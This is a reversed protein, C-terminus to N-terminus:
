PIKLPFQRRKSKLSTGKTGALSPSQTTLSLSLIHKYYTSASTFTNIKLACDENWELTRGRHLSRQCRPLDGKTPRLPATPQEWTSLRRRIGWGCKESSAPSAVPCVEQWHSPPKQERLFPQTSKLWRRSIGPDLSFGPTHSLCDSGQALSKHKARFFCITAQARSVCGTVQLSPWQQTGHPFSVGQPSPLLHGQGPQDIPGLNQEQGLNWKGVEGMKVGHRTSKGSCQSNPQIRSGGHVTHHWALSKVELLRLIRMQLTPVIEDLEQPKQSSSFSFFLVDPM